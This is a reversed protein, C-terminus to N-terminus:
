VDTWEGSPKAEGRLIQAWSRASETAEWEEEFTGCEGLVHGAVNVVRAEFRKVRFDGLDRVQPNFGSM